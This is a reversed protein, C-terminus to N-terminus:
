IFTGTPGTPGPPTIGSTIFDLLQVDDIMVYSGFYGSDIKTIDIRAQTAEAPAVGTVEYVHLWAKLFSNPISNIKITKDLGAGVPNNMTDLFTVRVNVQPSQAFGYKSLSLLLQYSQDGVINVTQSLTSTGTNYMIAAFNGTHARYNTVTTNSAIWNELTGTEFSSNNLLNNVAM